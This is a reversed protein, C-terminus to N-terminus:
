LSKYVALHQRAIPGGTSRAPSMWRQRAPAGSRRDAAGCGPRRAARGSADAGHHQRRRQADTCHRRADGSLAPRQRQQLLPRFPWVDPAIVPRGFSFALIAAGSTTGRATPCCASTPPACSLVPHGRRCSSCTWASARPRRRGARGALAAYADDHPHGAIILRLHAGPLCRFAAILEDLGKYPRIQGLALFVFDGGALGLRDGRRAATHVHRPLRRHLQRPRHRPRHRRRPQQSLLLERRAEEDHVHVADVLRYLAADALADLRTVADDHRRVNHATYVIHMGARRAESRAGALLGALKRARACPSWSRYLLEAWHLHIVDARGRWRRVLTATSPRRTPAPSARSRRNWPAAGLLRVYPNMQVCSVMVINMARESPAATQPQLGLRRLLRMGAPAESILGLMRRRVEGDLALVLAAYVVIM